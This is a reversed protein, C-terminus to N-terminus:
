AVEYGHRRFLKKAQRWAATLVVAWAHNETLDPRIEKVRRYYSAKAERAIERIEDPDRGWFSLARDELFKNRTRKPPSYVRARPLGLIVLLAPM